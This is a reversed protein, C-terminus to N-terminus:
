QSQLLLEKLKDPPTSMKHLMASAGRVRVLRHFNKDYNTTLVVIPIASYAPLSRIRTILALNESEANEIDVFIIAFRRDEKILAEAPKGGETDLVDYGASQLAGSYILLEDQGPKNILLATDKSPQDPILPTGLTDPNESNDLEDAHIGHAELFDHVSERHLRFTEAMSSMLSSIGQDTKQLATLVYLEAASHEIEYVMRLTETLPLDEKILRDAIALVRNIEEEDMIAEAHAIHADRLIRTEMRAMELHTREDKSLDSFFRHSEVDHSFRRALTSYTRMLRSEVTEILRLGKLADM